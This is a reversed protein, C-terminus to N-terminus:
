EEKIEVTNNRYDIKLIHPDDESLSAVFGISIEKVCELMSDYYIDDNTNSIYMTVNSMYPTNITLKTETDNEAVLIRSFGYTKIGQVRDDLLLKSIVLKEMYENIKALKDKNIYKEVKKEAKKFWSMKIGGKRKIKAM